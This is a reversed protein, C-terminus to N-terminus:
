LFRESGSLIDIGERLSLLATIFRMVTGAHGVDIVESPLALARLMVQTDDSESLNRITVPKEALSNLILLRNSISKSAPLRVRGILSLHDKELRYRM